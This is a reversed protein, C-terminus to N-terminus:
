RCATDYGRTRAHRCRATSSACDRTGRRRAACSPRVGARSAVVALAGREPRWTRGTGRAARVKFHAELGQLRACRQGLEKAEAAFKRRSAKHRREEAALRAEVAAKDSDLATNRDRLMGCKKQLRSM